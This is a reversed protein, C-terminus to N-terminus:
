GYSSDSLGFLREPANGDELLYATPTVSAFRQFDKALHQYDHYGCTLAISLWDADPTTYKLCYAKNLRAICAFLKPPVGIRQNFSREFQRPCLCAADALHTVSLNEPREIILSTISDIPHRDRRIGGVVKQLFLEVIDIM